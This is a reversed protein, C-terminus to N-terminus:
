QSNNILKALEGIWSRWQQMFLYYEADKESDDKNLIIAIQEDHSWISEILDKKINPSMEVIFKDNFSIKGYPLKKATDLDFKEETIVDSMDLEVDGISLKSITDNKILFSGVEPLTKNGIKKM